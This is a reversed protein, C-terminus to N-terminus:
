YNGIKQQFYDTWYNRNHNVELNCNRCLNILNNPNCNQKNYDIHHTTNGYQSCKQCIYNDRERISRRLTETWDVSYPEFSIGGRWLNHKGERILRKQGERIREKTIESLKWGGKRKGSSWEKKRAESIKINRGRHIKGNGDIWSHLMGLSINRRTELSRKQGLNSKRIKEITKQSHHYGKNRGRPM